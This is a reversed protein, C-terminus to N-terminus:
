KKLLFFDNKYSLFNEKIAKSIEERKLFKYIIIIILFKIVSLSLMM